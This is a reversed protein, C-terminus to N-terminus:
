KSASAMWTTGQMKITGDRKLADARATLENVFANRTPKDLEKVLTMIPGALDRMLEWYAQGNEVEVVDLEMEEIAINKFGSSAFVGRLREDDAFAFIGPAEPPPAPLETYNRLTTVMLSVFPNREPSAWCTVVLRGGRKLVGRARRLCAGPDLMFMLGWRITVADFTSPKFDLEEGDVYQFEINDLGEKTAKERAFSLMEDVYDTGIVKGAQGVKRAAPIAPEGTGSAIDLVWHGKTVGALELM